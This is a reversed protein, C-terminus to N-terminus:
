PSVVKGAPDTLALAKMAWMASEELATFALSKERCEPIHEDILTVDMMFMKRLRAMTEQVAPSPAHYTFALLRAELKDSM